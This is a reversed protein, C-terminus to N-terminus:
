PAVSATTPAEPRTTIRAPPGGGRLTVIREEALPAVPRCIIRDTSAALRARSLEGGITIARARSRDGTTGGSSRASSAELQGSSQDPRVPGNRLGRLFLTPDDARLPPPAACPVALLSFLGSDARFRVGPGPRADM